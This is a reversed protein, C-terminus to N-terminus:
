QKKSTRFWSRIREMMGRDIPTSPQYTLPVSGYTVENGPVPQSKLGLQAEELHEKAAVPAGNIRPAELVASIDTSTDNSKLSAGSLSLYARELDPLLDDMTRFRKQPDKCLMRSVIKELDAPCDPVLKGLPVPEKTLIALMLESVSKATFPKQFSITEYITVGVSWVDTGENASTGRLQEPSMYALTGIIMGAQSREIAPYLFRAIGFDQLKVVDEVTIFINGPKIDRHIVEQWHAFQLGRCVDLIYGVRRVLPLPAAQSLVGDLSQGELFEMVFYPVGDTEGVDYVNVLNPHQLRGATQGEQRFRELLGPDRSFDMSIMKIAVIRGLQSDRARYVVGLSGRGVQRLIEYKGIHNL